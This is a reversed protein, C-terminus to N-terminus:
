RRRAVTVMRGSDVRFVEGEAGFVQVDVFGADQLWATLEPASFLRLAYDSARTPEGSRTVFRRVHLRGTTPDFRSRDILFHRGQEDELEKTTSSEHDTLGPEHLNLTEVLLLGGPRLARRMARLQQQLADDREGDGDGYGFSTFWSVVGDFEQEFSLAGWDGARYDVQVGRRAAAARAHALFVECRDVGTVEAGREALREAIRGHGCPLDLVRQGAELQLLLAILEAEEDSVGAHLEAAYFDLYDQGFVEGPAAEPM